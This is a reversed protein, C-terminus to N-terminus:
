IKAFEKIFFNKVETWSAKRITPFEPEKEADELYTLAKKIVIENYNGFKKKFIEITKDGSIKLANM